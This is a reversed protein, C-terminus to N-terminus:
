ANNMQGSLFLIIAGLLVVLGIGILFYTFIGMGEAEEDDEGVERSSTEEELVRVEISDAEKGEYRLEIEKDGSEKFTYSVFNGKSVLSGNIVWEVKDADVDGSGELRYSFTAKDNKTYAKGDEPSEIYITVKTEDNEEDDAEAEDDGVYEGGAGGKAPTYCTCDSRQVQGSACSNACVCATCDSNSVLGTGCSPCVCEYDSACVERGPCHSDNVCEVDVCECQANLIEGDDCQRDCVDYCNCTYVDQVQGIACTNECVCATCNYNMEKNSACLSNDCICRNNELNCVEAPGCDNDDMCEVSVCRCNEIDLIEGEECTLECGEPSVTIFAVDVNNALYQEYAEETYLHAEVAYYGETRGPLSVSYRVTENGFIFDETGFQELVDRTEPEILTGMVTVAFGEEWATNSMVMDFEINEDENFISGETLQIDMALDTEPGMCSPTKVPFTILPNEECYRFGDDKVHCVNASLIYDQGPLLDARFYNSFSSLDAVNEVRDSTSEWEARFWDRNRDPMSVHLAARTRGSRIEECFTTQEFVQMSETSAEPIEVTYPETKVYDTVCECDGTNVDVVCGCAWTQFSRNLMEIEYTDIPDGSGETLTSFLNVWFSAVRDGIGNDDVDEVSQYIYPDDIDSDSANAPRVLSNNENQRSMPFVCNGNICVTQDPCTNGCSGCHDNSALLDVECGTTWDSDCNEYRTNPDNLCLCGNDIHCLANQGCDADSNCANGEVCSGNSCVLGLATCNKGCAGCNKDDNRPNVECGNGWDGDCNEYTFDSGRIPLCLCGENSDCIANQGCDADSNCANDAVCNGSQCSEGQACPMCEDGGDGCYRNTNGPHCTGDVSDICGSCACEGNVCEYGLDCDANVNCEVFEPPRAGDRYVKFKVKSIGPNSVLVKVVPFEGNYWFDRIIELDVTDARDRFDFSFDRSSVFFSGVAIFFLLLFSLWFVADKSFRFTRKKAM